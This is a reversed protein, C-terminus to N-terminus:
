LPRRRLTQFGKTLHEASVTEAETPETREGDGGVQRGNPKAEVLRGRLARRRELETAFDEVTGHLVATAALKPHRYGAAESAAQKIMAVPLTEDCYIQELVQAPSPTIGRRRCEALFRRVNEGPEHKVPEDEDEAEDMLRDLALDIRSM